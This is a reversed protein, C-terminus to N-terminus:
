GLGPEHRQYAVGITLKGAPCEYPFARVSEAWRQHKTLEANLDFTNPDFSM